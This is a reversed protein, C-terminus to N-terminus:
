AGSGSLGWLGSIQGEDHGAGAKAKCGHRLGGPGQDERITHLHIRDIMISVIVTIIIINIMYISVVIIIIILIM